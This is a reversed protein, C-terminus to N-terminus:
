QSALRPVVEVRVVPAAFPEQWTFVIDQEGHAALGGIATQSATVLNGDAGYLLATITFAAVPLATTNQIHATLKLATSDLSHSVVSVPVNARDM